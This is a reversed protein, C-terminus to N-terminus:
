STTGGGDSGAGAGAGSGDGDGSGLGDGSVEDDLQHTEYFEVAANMFDEFLAVTPEVKWQWWLEYGVYLPYAAIGIALTLLRGPEQDGM